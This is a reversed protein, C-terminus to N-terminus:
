IQIVGSSIRPTELLTEVVRFPNFAQWKFECEVREPNSDLKV